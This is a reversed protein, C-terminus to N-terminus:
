CISSLFHEGTFLFFSHSVIVMDITEPYVPAELLNKLYIIGKFQNLM